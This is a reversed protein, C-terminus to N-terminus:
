DAKILMQEMLEAIEPDEAVEGSLRIMRHQYSVMQKDDNFQLTLLGVHYGNPGTSLVLTKGIVLPKVYVRKSMGCLIADLTPFMEALYRVAADDDNIMAIRLDAAKGPGGLKERLVPIAQELSVDPDALYNKYQDGILNIVYVRYRDRVSSGDM